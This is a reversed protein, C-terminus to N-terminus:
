YVTINKLARNLKGYLGKSLGKREQCTGTDPDFNGM